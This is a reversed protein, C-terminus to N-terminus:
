KCLCGSILRTCLEFIISIGRCIVFKAVLFAKGSPVFLMASFLTSLLEHPYRTWDSSSFFIQRVLPLGYRITDVKYLRLLGLVSGMRSWCGIYTSFTKYSTLWAKDLVKSLDRLWNAYSWELKSIELRLVCRALNRGLGRSMLASCQVTSGLVPWFMPAVWWGFSVFRWFVLTWVARM